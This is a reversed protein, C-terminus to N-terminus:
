VYSDAETGIEKLRHKLIKGSANRPLGSVIKVRRPIKFEAIKGALFRRIEKLWGDEDLPNAGPKPAMFATVTEGWTPHPLGVVAAEQVGPHSNLADEVEKPYVNVGGTIIVDKKRDVIWFFGDQDRFALDGSYVWGKKLTQATEEPRNLYGLMTGEGRLRIEGIQGTPCPQDQEDVIEIETFLAGRRGISGSKEHHDRHHMLTGSPGAETLGYVCVMKEKGFADAIADAQDKSLPAGGYVWYKSSSLDTEPFNPEQMSLLYAVPAGFFHTIREQETLRLLMEPTFAPYFVHSAGVIVASVFMLHLPASHSLPMMHLIRSELNIEFEIAIMTGVTLLSRHSFRVGKPRGTTGSTYLVDVEDEETLTMPDFRPANGLPPSSKWDGLSEWGGEAPGTKVYFRSPQLKALEAVSPFLEEHVFMGRAQCDELIYAVEDRSFQVNIPVVVGGARLIAFYLIAFDPLNPMMLVVRDGRQIGKQQLHHALHDAQENWQRYTVRQEGFLLADRDPYKNGNIHLIKSLNM